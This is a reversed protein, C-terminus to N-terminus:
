CCYLFNFNPSTTNDRYEATYISSISFIYEVKCDILLTETWWNAADAEPRFLDDLELYFLELLLCPVGM